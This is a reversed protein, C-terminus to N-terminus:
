PCKRERVDILFQLLHTREGSVNEVFATLLQGVGAVLDVDKVWTLHAAEESLNICIKALVTTPRDICVGVTLGNVILGANPIVFILGPNKDGETWVHPYVPCDDGQLQPMCNTM